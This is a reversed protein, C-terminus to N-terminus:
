IYLRFCRMNLIVMVVELEISLFKELLLNQSPHQLQRDGEIPEKVPREEAVINGKKLLNDIFNKGKDTNVLICSVQRNDIINSPAYKGLGKYDSITIDSIRHQRAFQCHYCNERYSIM